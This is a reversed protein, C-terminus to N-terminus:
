LAIGKDLYFPYVQNYVNNTSRIKYKIQILLVGASNTDPTVKIDRVDIRPEWLLLAERVEQTMRSATTSNINAFVLDHIGCGFEPRMAREGKATGLIIEIAQSILQEDDAMGIQGNTDIGINFGWGRGILERGMLAEKVL